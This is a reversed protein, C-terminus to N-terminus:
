VQVGQGVGELCFLDQIPQEHTLAKKPRSARFFYYFTGIPGNPVGIGPAQKAPHRSFSFGREHGFFGEEPRADRVQCKVFQPLQPDRGMATAEEHDIGAVGSEPLYTLLLAQTGVNAQVEKGIQVLSLHPYPGIIAQSFDLSVLILSLGQLHDPEVAIVAQRPRFHPAQNTIPVFQHHGRRRPAVPQMLLFEEVM